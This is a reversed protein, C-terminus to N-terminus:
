TSPGPMTCVQLGLVGFVGLVSAHFILKHHIQDIYHFERLLLFGFLLLIWITLIYEKYSTFPIAIRM